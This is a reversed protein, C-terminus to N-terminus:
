ECAPSPALTSWRGPTPAAAAQDEGGAGIFQHRARDGRVEPQERAHEAAVPPSVKRASSLERFQGPPEAMEIIGAIRADVQRQPPLRAALDDDACPL